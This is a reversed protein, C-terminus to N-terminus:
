YTPNSTLYSYNSRSIVVILTSIVRCKLDWSVGELGNHLSNPDM